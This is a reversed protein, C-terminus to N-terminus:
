RISIINGERSCKVDSVEELRKLFVEIAEEKNVVGTYTTHAAAEGTLIIEVDYWCQLTSAVETLRCKKFVYFGRKWSLVDDVDVAQIKIKGSGEELSLQNGPTLTYKEEGVRAAVKGEALTVRTEREHPYARVNFCTGLVEIRMGDTVVLFPRRSDKAVELYVEGSVYITRSDSAFKVPYRLSSAANMWVKTGDGLTFHFDCMPPVSVTNHILEPHSFTDAYHEELVDKAIMQRGAVTDEPMLGGEPIVIQVGSALTLVPRRDNGDPTGEQSLVEGPHSKLKMAEWQLWAGGLALVLVACAAWRYVRRRFTLQRRKRLFDQFASPVDEQRYRHFKDWMTQEACIRGFLARHEESGALWSDLKERQEQSLTGSLFGSIWGSLEFFEKYNISDQM